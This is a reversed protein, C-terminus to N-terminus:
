KRSSEVINEIEQAKGTNPIKETNVQSVTRSSPGESNFTVSPTPKDKIKLLQLPIIALRENRLERFREFNEPSLNVKAWDFAQEFSKSLQLLDEFDNDEHNYPKLKVMTTINNAVKHPDFKRKLFTHLRLAEMNESEKIAHNFNALDFSGCKIPFSPWILKKKEKLVKTLGKGITEYTIERALLKDSIYLPPVHPNAISGFVRIHLHVM